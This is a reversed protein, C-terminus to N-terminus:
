FTIHIGNPGLLGVTALFIILLALLVSLWDESLNFSRSPKSPIPSNSMIAEDLIRYM